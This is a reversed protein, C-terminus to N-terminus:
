NCDSINTGQLSTGNNHPSHPPTEAAGELSGFSSCSDTDSLCAANMQLVFGEEEEKHLEENTEDDEDGAGEEERVSRQQDTRSTAAPTHYAQERLQSFAPSTFPSLSFPVKPSPSPSQYPSLSPSASPSDHPSLSSPVKRSLSPSQYPSLSPFDRPSDLPSRSPSVKPFLPRAMPSVSPSLYPSLSPSLSFNIVPSPQMYDSDDPIHEMVTPLQAAADDGRVGAESQGPEMQMQSQEQMEPQIHTTTSPPQVRAESPAGQTQILPQSDQITPDIQPAQSPVKSKGKTKPMLPPPPPPALPPSLM